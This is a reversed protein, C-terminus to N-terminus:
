GRSTRRGTTRRSFGETTGRGAEGSAGEAAGRGTGARHPFDTMDETDAASSATYESSPNLGYESTPASMESSAYESITGGATGTGPGFAMRRLRRVEDTNGGGSRHMASQGPAMGGNLDEASLEGELYRVIQAMRPRSRATQRVAAAACAVLRAMDYADYNTGLEPDILEEYNEEELAKTLLPKAWTALTEPQHDSSAMIPKRGTILELLMVGFSYVDSRDTVKGTAYYEPALYGFTGMVRTSVATHEAEQCKALGFDAVKPEYNYDLLINAAKIDRHIIKPHCDEHLYALGKASGVAIKWRRPWDLTARASGHHLQSELTKNPVYEYVLLRQEAHICFGVLSVLNKHHVRSIIDVEARFERHGQGSGARLKKIAVEQGKVTGKYVHGFGGQGLLNEEAFGDTAAALEDYGFTGGTMAPLPPGGPDGGSSQAWSHMLPPTSSPTSLPHSQQLPTTPQRPDYFFDAPTGPPPVRRRRRRKSVFFFILAAALGLLVVAGVAVGVGLATGSSSSSKASTSPAEASQPPPPPYFTLASPPPATAAPADIPLPPSSPVDEPPPPTADPPAPSSPPPRRPTPTPTPTQRPPPPSPSVPTPNPTPTPRPPSPSPTVPTPNPTTPPRPSPPPPSPPPPSNVPPLVPPNVITPPDAQVPTPPVAVPSPPIAVPSPTPPVPTVPSPTVPTPPVPTVPSPIVPTPPVPTVPPLGADPPPPSSM